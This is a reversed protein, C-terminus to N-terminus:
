PAKENGGVEGDMGVDKDETEGNERKAAPATLTHVDMRGYPTTWADRPIWMEM